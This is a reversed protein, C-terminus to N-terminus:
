STRKREYSIFTYAFMDHVHLFLLPKPCGPVQHDHRILSLDLNGLKDRAAHPHLATGRSGQLFEVHRHKSRQKKRGKALTEM